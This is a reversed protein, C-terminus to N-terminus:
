VADLVDYFNLFLLYMWKEHVLKMTTFCLDIRIKEKNLKVNKNMKQEGLVILGMARKAAPENYM